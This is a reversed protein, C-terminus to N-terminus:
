AVRRAGNARATEAVQLAELIDERHYPKDIVYLAGGPEDSILERSATAHFVTAGYAQALTRAIEPGTSGDRLRCDVFAVEALHAMALAEQRDAAMGVVEHGADEVILELDMAILMDDEVILVKM